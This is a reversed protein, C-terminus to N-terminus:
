AYFLVNQLAYSIAIYAFFLVFFLVYLYQLNPLQGLQPVLQGTLNANGLDRFTFMVM